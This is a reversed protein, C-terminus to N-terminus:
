LSKEKYTGGNGSAINNTVYCFLSAQILSKSKYTTM